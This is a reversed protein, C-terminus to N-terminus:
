RVRWVRDDSFEHEPVEGFVWTWWSGGARRYTCDLQVTYLNDEPLMVVKAMLLADLSSCDFASLRNEEWNIQYKFDTLQADKELHVIRCWPEQRWGIKDYSYIIDMGLVLAAFQTPHKTALM